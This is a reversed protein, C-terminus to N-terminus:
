VNVTVAVLPTPVPAAELGELWTVGSCVVAGPGGVPTDATAPLECVVTDNEGGADFPPEAIV